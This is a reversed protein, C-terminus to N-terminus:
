SKPSSLYIEMSHTKYIQIPSSLPLSQPQQLNLPQELSQLTQIQNNSLPLPTPIVSLAQKITIRQLTFTTPQSQMLVIGQAKIVQVQLTHTGRDVNSLVFTVGTQPASVPNTDLLLNLKDGERLDPELQM